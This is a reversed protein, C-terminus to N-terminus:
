RACACAPPDTYEACSNDEEGDTAPPTCMEGDHLSGDEDLDELANECATDPGSRNRGCLRRCAAVASCLVLLGLPAAIALEVAIRSDSQLPGQDLTTVVRRLWQDVASPVTVVDSLNAMYTSNNAVVTVLM